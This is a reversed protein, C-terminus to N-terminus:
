RLSARFGEAHIAGGAYLMTELLAIGSAGGINRMLKFLGSVDAVEKKALARRACHPEAVVPLFM